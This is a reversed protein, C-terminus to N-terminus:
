GIELAPGRQQERERDRPRTRGDLRHATEHCARWARLQGLDTPREGLGNTDVHYRDRYAEAEKAAARRTRRGRVSDPVPGLLGALWEPTEVTAPPRM